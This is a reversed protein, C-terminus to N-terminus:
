DGVDGLSAWHPVGDLSPWVFQLWLAAQRKSSFRAAFGAKRRGVKKSFFFRVGDLTTLVFKSGAVEVVEASKAYGPASNGLNVPDLSAGGKFWGSTCRNFLEHGALHVYADAKARLTPAVDGKDPNAFSAVTVFIGAEVLADVLPIFDGDGSYIVCSKMNGKHAHQIADIALKVDVGQQKVITGKRKIQGTRVVFGDLTQIEDIWPAVSDDVDAGSYVLVRDHRGRQLMEKLSFCRYDGKRISTQSLRQILGRAINDADVFAYSPESIALSPM